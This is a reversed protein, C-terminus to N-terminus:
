PLTIRKIGEGDRKIYEKNTKGHGYIGHIRIKGDADITWIPKGAGSYSGEIHYYQIDSRDIMPSQRPDEVIKRLHQETCSGPIASFMRRDVPEAEEHIEPLITLDLMQAVDEMNSRTCLGEGLINTILTRILSTNTIPNVYKHPNQEIYQFRENARLERKKSNALQRQVCLQSSTQLPNWANGILAPDAFYDYQGSQMRQPVSGYHGREGFARHNQRIAIAEEKKKSAVQLYQDRRFKSKRGDMKERSNDMKYSNM